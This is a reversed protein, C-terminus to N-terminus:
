GNLLVSLDKLPSRYGHQVMLALMANAEAQSIVNTQVLRVLIGLTGTVAIGSQRAYRRADRDDTWVMMGRHQAIALCSAEGAGLRRHIVEFTFLEAESLPLVTLWEITIPAFYGMEIASQFEKAVEETTAAKGEGAIRLLHLQRVLAFNSLVTCNLVYRLEAEVHEL